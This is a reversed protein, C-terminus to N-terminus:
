PGKQHNAM